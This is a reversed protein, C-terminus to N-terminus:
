TLFTVAFKQRLVNQPMVQLVAVLLGLPPIEHALDTLLLKDPAPVPGLQHPLVRPGLVLDSALVVLSNDVEQLYDTSQLITSIFVKVPPKLLNSM